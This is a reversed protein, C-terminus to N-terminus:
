RGEASAATARRAAAARARWHARRSRRATSDTDPAASHAASCSCDGASAGTTGRAAVRGSQPSDSAPSAAAAAGACTSADAEASRNARRAARGPAHAVPAAPRASASASRGATAGSRRCADATARSPRGAKRRGATGASHAMPRDRGCTGHEDPRDVASDGDRRGSSRTDDNGNGDEGGTPRGTKQLWSRPQVSLTVAFSPSAAGIDPRRSPNTPVDRWM